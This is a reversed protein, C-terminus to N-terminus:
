ALFIQPTIARAECWARSVPDQSPVAGFRVLQALWALVAFPLAVTFIVAFYIAFEIRSGRRGRSHSTNATHDSM